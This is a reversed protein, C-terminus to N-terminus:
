HVPLASRLCSWGGAERGMPESRCRSGAHSGRRPPRWPWMHSTRCGPCSVPLVCCSTTGAWTRRLWRGSPSASPQAAPGGSAAPSAGPLRCGTWRGTPAWSPGPASAGPPRGRPSSRTGSCGPPAPSVQTRAARPQPMASQLSVRSVSCESFWAPAMLRSQVKMAKHISQDHWLARIMICIYNFTYVNTTTHTQIWSITM